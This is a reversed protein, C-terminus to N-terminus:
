HSKEVETRSISFIIYVVIYIVNMM